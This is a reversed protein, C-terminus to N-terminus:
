PKVPDLEAAITRSEGAAIEISRVWPQFGNKTLKISHTGPKLKITSPTNGAYNGDITIEAGTPDSTFQMTAAAEPGAQAAAAPATTGSGQAPAPAAPPTAPISALNVDKIAQRIAYGIQMASFHAATKESDVGKFAGKASLTKVVAHDSVRYISIEAELKGLTFLSGKQYSSFRGEIVLSDAADAAAVTVGEEVVQSAAKNKELWDRLGDCFYGAFEPSLSTGNSNVFHQVVITKFSLQSEKAPLPGAGLILLCAPLVFPIFRKM